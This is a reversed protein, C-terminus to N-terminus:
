REGSPNLKTRVPGLAARMDPAGWLSRFVEGETEPSAVLRKAGRVSAKPLQLYPELLATAATEADGPECIADVLGWALATQADVKLAGGLMRLAATRGVIEQLRAGGGWGPSLGLRAHVFRIHATRSMVRFDAVTAMEAGGGVAAGEIAAVSLLPLARLRNTLGTMAENMAQGLLPEDVAARVLALDAGACFSRLGEGRLVVAVGDFDQLRDVADQLQRMMPGSLANSRDPNDFTLRALSGKLELRVAGDGGLASLRDLM